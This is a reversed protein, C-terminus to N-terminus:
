DGQTMTAGIGYALPRGIARGTMKNAKSLAFSIAAKVSPMGLTKRAVLATAAGPGGGVIGGTTTIIMDGLQVVDYNRTRNVARELVEELNILASDKTNLNALSPNAKVIEEKLGRAIAKDGEIALTKMEGYHKRHLKYITQKMAQAEQPTIKGGSLYQSQIENLEDLFPKARDPPLNSYFDKLKDVRKIVDKMDISQGTRSYQATAKNVEKEIEFNISQIDNQLKALGKQTPYYKGEIGTEVARTRIKEAISPPIKLTSEYIRKARSSIFEGGAGIVKGGIQGGAEMAAGTPIEKILREGAEVPGKPAPTLGVLEEVKKAAAYGLGAGAVQGVPGAPTGLAGGGLLGLTELGAKAPEHWWPKRPISTEAKVKAPLDSYEPYKAALKEALSLDNLDGYDPYQKRFNTIETIM